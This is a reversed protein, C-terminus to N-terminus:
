RAAWGYFRGAGALPRSSGNVVIALALQGAHAFDPGTWHQVALASGDVAWGLPVDFGESASQASVGTRAGPEQGFSPEAAGPRWAVGLQQGTAAGQASVSGGAEVDLSAVRALYRLGREVNSEIFALQKGDPSLRWDRTIQSSIAAVESGDRLATSGRGDIVVSVFRGETDFGVAYAGLVPNASGIPREGSRDIAVRAFQVDALGAENTRLRTVVVAASSADWLPTQLPDVGTALRTVSGTELEVVLLSAGPHAMSGADVTILALRRGDPSVAGNSTYGSLHGVKAIETTAAPDTAPAVLIVDETGTDRAVVAYQGSPATAFATRAITTGDIGNIVAAAIPLIAIALAVVGSAILVRRLRGGPGM